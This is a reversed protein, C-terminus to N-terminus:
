SAWIRGRPIKRFNWFITNSSFPSHFPWGRSQVNFSLAVKAKRLSSAKTTHLITFRIKHSHRDYLTKEASDRRGTLCTWWWADCNLPVYKDSSKLQSEQRQVHRVPRLSLYLILHGQGARWVGRNLERLMGL